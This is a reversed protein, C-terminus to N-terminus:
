IVLDSWKASFYKSNNDHNYLHASAAFFLDAFYLIFIVENMHIYVCYAHSKKNILSKTFKIIKM